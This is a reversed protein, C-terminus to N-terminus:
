IEEELDGDLFTTKVDMQEIELDFIAVLSMLVRISTLKAFLSFIEGFNVGEAQSYGKV